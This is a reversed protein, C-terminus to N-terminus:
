RKAVTASLPVFDEEAVIKQGEASLLFDLYKRALGQPAGRTVMNLPRLLGYKKDRVNEVTAVIGDLAVRHIKSGESEAVAASGISVYAIALPNGAASAIAQGNPGIIVANKLFKGKLKFYNEFLELTARGEEKNIVVIPKDAGGLSRWNTIKGTYVDVVQQSTINRLANDAHVIIALGDLAVTTAMLDSEEAHLARSVTGIDALGSRASSIGVSSGGGQVDIKTGPNRKEFAQAAVEALPQITSSGALTLHNEAQSDRGVILMLSFLTFLFLPTKNM